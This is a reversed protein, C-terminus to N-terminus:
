DREVKEGKWHDEDAIKYKSWLASAYITEKNMLPHANLAKKAGEKKENKRM